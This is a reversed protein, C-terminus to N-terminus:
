SQKSWSDNGPAGPETEFGPRSEPFIPREPHASLVLYKQKTDTIGTSVPNTRM